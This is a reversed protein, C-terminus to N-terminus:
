IMREIVKDESIFFLRWSVIFIFISLLISFLYRNIYQIEGHLILDRVDGVLYTLPNWTIVKRLRPDSVDSSYIIPTIYIVLGMLLNTVKKTQNAIATFVSVILGLGAGIFFIPIILIPLLFTWWSLYVKFIVLIIITFAFGLTFNSLYQATQKILLAEHPFKVQMIFGAGADLTETASTFFGLFLGFITTSILVYAPYPIDVDGPNLIGTANLLVWSLIGILPSIFVWAVGLFSKKYIAVFDRKFLQFILERSAVVNKIIVIWSKLFGIKKRQKPVYTITMETRMRAM